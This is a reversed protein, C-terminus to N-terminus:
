KMLQSTCSIYHVAVSRRFMCHLTATEKALLKVESDQIGSDLAASIKQEWSYMQQVMVRIESMKAYSLKM